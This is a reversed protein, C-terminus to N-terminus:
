LTDSNFVRGPMTVPFVIEPFGYSFDVNKLSTKKRQGINEAHSEDWFFCLVPMNKNRLEHLELGSLMGHTIVTRKALRVYLLAENGLKAKAANLLIRLHEVKWNGREAEVEPVLFWDLAALMQDITISTLADSTRPYFQFLSTSGGLLESVVRDYFQQHLKSSAQVDIKKGHNYVKRPVFPFVHEGPKFVEIADPDLVSVANARLNTVFVKRGDWSFISEFPGAEMPVGQVFRPKAPTSYRDAMERALEAARQNLAFAQDELGYEALVISAAGFTDTEIVDCGAELFQAHVAQVADPRTFVLNENCGELAAGGFDEASLDMQQLSTGTAGDFVVVPRGPGHLHELFGIRGTGTRAAAASGVLATM